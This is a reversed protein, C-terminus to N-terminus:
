TPENPEGLSVVLTVFQDRHITIGQLASRRVGFQTKLTSDPQCIDGWPPNAGGPRVGDQRLTLTKRDIAVIQRPRGV